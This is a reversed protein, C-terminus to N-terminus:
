VSRSETFDVRKLATLQEKTLRLPTNVQGSVELLVPVSQAFSAGTNLALATCLAIFLTKM